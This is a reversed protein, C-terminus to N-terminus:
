RITHNAVCVPNNTNVEGELVGGKTTYIHDKAETPHRCNLDHCASYVGVKCYVCNLLAVLVGIQHHMVRIFRHVTYSEKVGRM